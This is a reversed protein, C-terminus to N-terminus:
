FSTEYYLGKEDKKLKSRLTDIDKTTETFDLHLIRTKLDARGQVKGFSGNADINVIFPSTVSYSINAISIEGPIFSKLSDDVHLAHININSTFLLTFLNIKEISAVRIGKVYVEPNILNFSFIGEEMREENIKIDQKELEKELTYYLKEKPMFLLLAFWFVVFAILINKVVQM